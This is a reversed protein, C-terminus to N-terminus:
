DEVEDVRLAVAGGDDSIVGNTRLVELESDSLGLEERLVQSTHEGVWPVRSSEDEVLRSMKVPNGPSLIPDAVGDVRDMAVIMNRRRLHPDAIVDGPTNVPGAAVGARGLAEAAAFKTRAAAWREVAPRVVDDLHDFWDSPQALRPDTLWGPEDLLNALREWQHRRLVQMVFYGNSALFAHNILPARGGDRLGMSWYNIGADGLAVMADYMAIDVYQGEGTRDRHRLAALVGIVAYLSSATDGLSGVPSSIPAVGPERKFEYLGGMAEVVPAYAPWDEYRDDDGHGFGSVSLYVVSPHVTVIDDYGLALRDMTSARFNECVVDFRPALRLVLDRGRPDKLDVGVSLKGLNNRLFTNGVPRGFPDNMAPLAGRGAEGTVPHEIKVIEAGLRALLQTGYPLSQMQELALVRVGALPAVGGPKQAM